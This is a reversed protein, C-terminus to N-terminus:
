STNQPTHSPDADYLDKMLELLHDTEGASAYITLITSWELTPLNMYDENTFKYSDKLTEADAATGWNCDEYFEGVRAPRM